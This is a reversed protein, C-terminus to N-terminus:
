SINSSDHGTAGPNRRMGGPQQRNFSGQRMVTTQSADKPRLIKSLSNQSATGGNNGPPSAYQNSQGSGTVSNSGSNFFSGPASNNQQGAAGRQKM